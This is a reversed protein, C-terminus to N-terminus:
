DENEHNEGVPVTGSRQGVKFQFIGRVVESWAKSWLPIESSYTERHSFVVVRTSGPWRLGAFDGGTRTATGNM